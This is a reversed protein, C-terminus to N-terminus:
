AQCYRVFTSGSLAVPQFLLVKNPASGSDVPTTWSFVHFVLDGSDLPFSQDDLSANGFGPSHSFTDGVLWGIWSFHTHSENKEDPEPTPSRDSAGHGEGALHLHGVSHHHHPHQHHDSKTKQTSKVQQHGHPASGGAHAHRVEFSPMGGLVLLGSILYILPGTVTQIV